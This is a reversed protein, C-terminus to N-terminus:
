WKWQHQSNPKWAAAIPGNRRQRWSFTGMNLLPLRTSMSYATSDLRVPPLYASANSTCLLQFFLNRRMVMCMVRHNLSPRCHTKEPRINWCHLSSRVEDLMGQTSASISVESRSYRGFIARTTKASSPVPKVVPRVEQHLQCGGCLSITLRWRVYPAVEFGWTQQGM